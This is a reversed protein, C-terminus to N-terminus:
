DRITVTEIIQRFKGADKDYFYLSPAEYTILYLRGNRVAGIAEARREVEDHNSIYTYAFRIGKHGAFEAPHQTGIAIRTGPWLTRYTNELLAPIDTILMGESVKPLPNNKRDREKFLSAGIPVGGYFTLKNLPDGDITWIEQYKGERDDLRNWEHAPSASFGGKAIKEHTGPEILKNASAEAIGVALMAAAILLITRM